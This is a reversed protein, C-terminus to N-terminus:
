KRMIWVTRILGDEVKYILVAEVHESGPIGIILEDDIVYDGFEIRNRIECHLNPAGEFRNRYFERIENMGSLQVKDPFAYITVSPSYFSLFGELDRQNYAEVQRSVLEGPSEDSAFLVVPYLMFLM